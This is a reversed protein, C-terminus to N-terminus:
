LRVEKHLMNLWKSHSWHALNIRCIQNTQDYHYKFSKWNSFIGLPCVSKLKCIKWWKRCYKASWIWRNINSTDIPMQFRFYQKLVVNQRMVYYCFLLIVNSNVIAFIFSFLSLQKTKISYYYHDCNLPYLHTVPM